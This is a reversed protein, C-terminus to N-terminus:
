QDKKRGGVIPTRRREKQWLRKKEFRTKKSTGMIKQGPSERFAKVPSSSQNGFSSKDGGKLHSREKGKLKLTRGNWNEGEADPVRKEKV